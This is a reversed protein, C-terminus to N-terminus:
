LSNLTDKARITLRSVVLEYSHDILETFLQGGIKGCTDITNWHHKNMHYGPKVEEYQDRLQQARVPECKLTVSEFTDIHTLAFM